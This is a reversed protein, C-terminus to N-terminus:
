ARRSDEALSAARRAALYAFTMSPGLTGGAGPYFGALPSAAANGAAYLGEIVSGDARVVQAHENTCLGGKTGLDGPFLRLGYYPPAALPALCPNPRVSADGAYRDFAHEGRAFADDKGRAADENFRAVTSALGAADVGLARALADLSHARTVFGSELDRRPTVGPLMGAIPYRDRYRRDFIMFSPVAGGQEKDRRQM